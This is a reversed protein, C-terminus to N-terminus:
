SMFDEFSLVFSVLRWLFSLERGEDKGACLIYKLSSCNMTFEMHPLIDKLKLYNLLYNLIIFCLCKCILFNLVYM